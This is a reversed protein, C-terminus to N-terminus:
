LNEPSKLKPNENPIKQGCPIKPSGKDGIGIGLTEFRRPNKSKAWFSFNLRLAM